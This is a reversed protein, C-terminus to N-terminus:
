ESVPGVVLAKVVGGGELKTTMPVKKTKFQGFVSLFFESLIKQVWLAMNNQDFISVFRIFVVVNGVSLM